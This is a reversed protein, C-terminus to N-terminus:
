KRWLVNPVHDDIESRLQSIELANNTGIDGSQDPLQFRTNIGIVVGDSTVLPGGSNGHRIVAEHQVWTQGDADKVTRSVVGKTLTFAFDRPNFQEKVDTPAHNIGQKDEWQEVQKKLAETDSLPNMAVGPFGIAFVDESRASPPTASLVFSPQDKRDIHIIAMDFHASVFVIDAVYKKGDLFVWVKPDIVVLKDKLMKERWAKANILESTDKVVHRNTLFYGDPSVAFCSGAGSWDEVSKGDPAILHYGCVTFGVAQSVGPEDNVTRILPRGEFALALPNKASHKYLLVGVVIAIVAVIAASAAIFRPWMSRRAAGAPPFAGTLPAFSVAPVSAADGEAWVLNSAEIQGSRALHQLEPLPLPGITNGDKQCYYKPGPIPPVVTAVQRAPIASPVPPFLSEIQAAAQWTIRNISLEDLRSVTGRRVLKELMPLDFPGTIKGKARVYFPGDSM